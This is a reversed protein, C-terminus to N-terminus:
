VKKVCWASGIRCMLQKGLNAVTYFLKERGNLDNKFM